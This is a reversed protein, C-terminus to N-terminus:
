GRVEVQREGNAGQRTFAAHRELWGLADRVADGHAREVADAVDRPALAWLASLSKVPTFTLDYGAVARLGPRGARALFGSLERADLPARGHEDTFLERGLETRIRARDAEPLQAGRPRGAAANAAAFREALQVRFVSPAGEVRFVSGLQSARLAQRVPAGAAIQQSEIRDADPHGGEGFLAVMQAETVPGSPDFGDLGATGQGLWVGPAEGREAYYEGLSSLGRETSDQVAVHRTLYTYGDGASLKHLSMVGRLM